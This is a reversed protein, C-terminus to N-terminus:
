EQNTSFLADMLTAEPNSEGLHVVSITPYHELFWPLLSTRFTVLVKRAPLDPLLPLIDAWGLGQETEYPGIEDVIWLDASQMDLLYKNAWAINEQNMCWKGVVNEDGPQALRALAKKQMGPILCVEIGTKSGAEFVAPCYIGRCTWRRTKAAALVKGVLTTKGSGSDVCIAYIYAM